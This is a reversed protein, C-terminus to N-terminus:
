RGHAGGGRQTTNRYGNLEAAVARGLGGLLASATFSSRNGDKLHAQFPSHRSTRIPCSSMADVAAQRLWKRLTEPNM